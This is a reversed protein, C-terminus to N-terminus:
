DVAYLIYGKLTQGAMAAAATSVTVYVEKETEYAFNKAITAPIDQRVLVTVAAAAVLFATDDSVVGAADIFGTGAKDMLGFALTAAGTSASVFFSGGLIRANKPLACLAVDHGAGETAFVKTFVAIRARGEKQNTKLPQYNPPAVQTLETSLSDIVTAPM